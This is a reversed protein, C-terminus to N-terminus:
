KPASYAILHTTVREQEARLVKFLAREQLYVGEIAPVKQGTLLMQNASTVGTANTVTSCTHPPHSGDRRAVV